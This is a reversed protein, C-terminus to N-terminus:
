HETLCDIDLTHYEHCSPSVSTAGKMSATAGSKDAQVNFRDLHDYLTSICSDWTLASKGDNSLEIIRGATKELAHKWSNLLMCINANGRKPM